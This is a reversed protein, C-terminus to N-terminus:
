RSIAVGFLAIAFGRKGPTLSGGDRLTSSM